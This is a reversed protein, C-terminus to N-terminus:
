QIKKIIRKAKRKKITRRKSRKRKQRHMQKSRERKGVHAARNHVQKCRKSGEHGKNDHVLFRRAVGKRWTTRKPQQEISREGGNSAHNQLCIWAPTGCHIPCSSMSHENNVLERMPQAESNWGQIEKEQHNQNQAKRESHLLWNRLDTMSRLGMFEPQAEINKLPVEKGEGGDCGKKGPM